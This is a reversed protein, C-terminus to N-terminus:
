MKHFTFGVQSSLSKGNDMWQEHGLLAEFQMEQM